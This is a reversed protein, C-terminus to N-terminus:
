HKKQCTPCYYTGRGGVVTKLILSGCVPCPEGEKGHVLLENQFRGHVGEESEYSRITTGGMAIAKELVFNTNVIIHKCDEELLTKASELPHIGSLFLIEDDYINGIGSIISQDLLVTKIPLSKKAFSSLLYDSTLKEDDYEFGLLSLPPRILYESKPLLLMKGFKRTDHFRLQWSDDFTFFVHEHKGKPDDVSRFFFRGEMRLHILLVDNTLTFVLWKGRTDIKLITQGKLQNVFSSVDPYQITNEWFVQVNSITKGILRKELNRAVTIVEPKEPMAIGRENFHYM